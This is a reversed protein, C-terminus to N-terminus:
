YLQSRMLFAVVAPCAFFRLNRGFTWQVPFLMNGFLNAACRYNDQDTLGAAYANALAFFPVFLFAVVLYYWKVGPYIHPIAICGLVFCFIYGALSVPRCCLRQQM